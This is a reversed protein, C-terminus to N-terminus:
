RFALTDVQRVGQLFGAMMDAGSTAGYAMARAAARKVERVNGWALASLLQHWSEAVHGLAASQLFALSITNTREQAASLIVQGVAKRDAARSSLCMGVLWGALWDDGSPTLGPGLGCLMAASSQVAALEGKRCASVLGAVGMMAVAKWSEPNKANSGDLMQALSHKPANSRLYVLLHDLNRQLLLSTRLTEWDPEPNWLSSDLLEIRLGGQMAHPEVALSCGDGIVVTGKPWQEFALPSDLVINLPGNGVSPHVLALLDGEATVLDCARAFSALVRAEFVSRLVLSGIARSISVAKL